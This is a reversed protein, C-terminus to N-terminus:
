SQARRWSRIFKIETLYREARELFRRRRFIAHLAKYGHYKLLYWLYVMSVTTRHAAFFRARTAWIFESKYFPKNGREFIGSMYKKIKERSNEYREGRLPNERLMSMYQDKDNDLETIREIVRDFDNGYDNCNVFAKPNFDRAVDPNGWYVPVSDAIFPHYLKETTYGIQSENEFAITFKYNKLFEIKGNFWDESYRGSVAGRMNNLVRGPCDVHRYRTLKKCFEQRLGAGGKLGGNWYIFNCFKREALGENLSTRDRPPMDLFEAYYPIYLHREGFSIDHMGIAYDYFNFDPVLNEVYFFIKVCNKYRLFDAGYNFCILFDPNECFLPDYGDALMDKLWAARDGTPFHDCVNVRLLKRDPV